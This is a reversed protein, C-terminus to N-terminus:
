TLHRLPHIFVTLLDEIFFIGNEYGDERRRFKKIKNETFGRYLEKRSLFVGKPCVRAQNKGNISSIKIKRTYFKPISNLRFYELTYSIYVFWNFTDIPYEFVLTLTRGLDGM